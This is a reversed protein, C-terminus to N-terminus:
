VYGRIHSLIEFLGKRLDKLERQEGSLLKIQKKNKYIKYSIESFDKNFKEEILKVTEKKM